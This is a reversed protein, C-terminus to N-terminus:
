IHKITESSYFRQSLDASRIKKAVQLLIDTAQSTMLLSTWPNGGWAFIYLFKSM